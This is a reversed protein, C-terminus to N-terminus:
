RYSCVRGWLFGTLAVAQEKTLEDVKNQYIFPYPTGIPLMCYEPIEYFQLAGSYTGGLDKACTIGFPEDSIWDHTAMLVQLTFGYSDDDSNDKIVKVIGIFSDERYQYIGGVKIFDWGNKNARAM